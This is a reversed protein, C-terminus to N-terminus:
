SARGTVPTWAAWVRRSRCAAARRTSRGMSCRSSRTRTLFLPPAVNIFAYGVNCKYVLDYGDMVAVFSIDQTVQWRELDARLDRALAAAEGLIEEAEEGKLGEDRVLQLATDIDAAKGEWGVAREMTAKLSNL